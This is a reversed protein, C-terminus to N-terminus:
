ASSTETALAAVPLAREVKAGFGKFAKEAKPAKKKRGEQQREKVVAGKDMKAKMKKFFAEESEGEMNEEKAKFMGMIGGMQKKLTTLMTMMSQVELETSMSADAIRVRRSKSEVLMPPSAREQETMANIMKAYKGFAKSKQYLEKDGIKNMGPLMKMMALGGVGKINDIVILLDNYDFEGSELRKGFREAVDPKIMKEARDFMSLVDGMGLIRQSMREPYFLELDDMGEGTGMFKIPKGSVERVSLAAGGRSDGDMKTVISGTIDVADNFAKVLAAAAQGTMADVVLLTDTPSTAAKVDRLEQMMVDDIQLRGATDIIIVDANEAKGQEVGKRAIDVPNAGTGMEFVPVGLTSGLKILQDIAAPRYVDTAVLLVKKGQKTLLKALKGCATTKGVGQLGAMLIIQPTGPVLDKSGESGMLAILQENVVNIFQTKPSVGEIVVMGVAADEVKKTFRRVVDLSVDAELLAKRVEKLPEKMNDATLTTNSGLMKFAQEMGRSLSDFMAARVVVAQRGRPRAVTSPQAKHPCAARNSSAPRM